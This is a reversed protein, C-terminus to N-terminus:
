YWMRPQPQAACPSCTTRFGSCGTRASNLRKKSFSEIALTLHHAQHLSARTARVCTAHMSVPATGILLRQTTRVRTQLFLWHRSHCGLNLRDQLARHQARQQAPTACSRSQDGHSPWCSCRIGPSGRRCAACPAARPRMECRCSSSSGPTASRLCVLAHMCAHARM